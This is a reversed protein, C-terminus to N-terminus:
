KNAIFFVASEILKPLATKGNITEGCSTTDFITTTLFFDLKMGVWQLLDADIYCIDTM